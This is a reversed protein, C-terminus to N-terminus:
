TVSSCILSAIWFLLYSGSAGTDPRDLVSYDVYTPQQSGISSETYQNLLVSVVSLFAFYDSKGDDKRTEFNQPM